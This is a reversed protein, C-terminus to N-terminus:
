FAASSGSTGPPDLIIRNQLTWMRQYLGTTRILEAHTGRQTIRGDALVIIEDMTELGVLRHTIWLVTRGHMVVPLTALLREEAVADLNATPEDLLLIPADQLLCRAVALRQREGGSMQVGREGIWTELGQPLGHVWELMGAQDLVQALREEGSTPDVLRLNDRVTGNFLHIRQSIVAFQRRVDGPDLRRLECDGLIIEGVRYDWLRLLLNALTTKGAGSPGVLALRKGAPLDLNFDELVYPLEPQYRFALGQIRIASSAPLPCPQVPARVEPEADVLAFLRRAAQYSSELQQAAQGLPNVAEFSALTVLALVALAVGDFVGANVLPVATWLVLWLTLGSALVLLGSSMGGAWSLGQQSRGYHQNLTMISHVHRDGQNNSVLDPMGQIGDVVAARLLARREVAARGPGNAALRTLLPVFVGTAFLGGALLWGLMPHYQGVFLSIGLTVIFAVVPPAVARVYFNELTEIDAVARSLLDGTRFSQLRAPALPELARYFAVRLEALLRFNVSHSVLRELYRFLSRSIGFFRVGVIAVQLVAISPQQAARAILFASTGLLGIGAAVTATGLLISLAVWRSFPRLLVLLRLAANM